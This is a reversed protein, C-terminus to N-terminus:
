EQIWVMMSGPERNGWAYYPIATIPTAGNASAETRYLRSGWDDVREFEAQGTLKVIGGLLDQDFEPALSRDRPLRVLHLPVPSDTAEVCYILPGRRVAIRGADQRVEPHASIRDIPMPLELKLRDGARWERTLRAYGDSVMHALDIPDGNLTIMPAGCWGPLRLSLTFTTPVDPSIEIEVDGSWPYETKQVLRVETGVASLRAESAMYLHVAIGDSAQGYAYSGISSVLRAINPPCCPCRHWIWRHHNGRSELPNDYFFTAGDLSLGALAANHIALEMIDAFRADLTGSLMRRAWFVLGVAACTEAYATENPLDYDSTFGENNASPGMGGTVYLRKSVLDDWLRDAAEALSGDAFEAALDAVASYLYMARVAHGVVKTQERVPLHAQSYEHTGFHYAAPDDDRKRAEDDFYLPETGRQDVFFKALNLYKAVGTARHLRILALEIEPHGCYGKLQDPGPGFREAIHDAYRCVIDLFRRKATAEFYAVAAEMLHGACYLEHCDRLNKWREGPQMRIFWSNLYGDALQLRAFMDVINDVIKEIQPDRAEALCNATAEIFKAVDSDWFMQMTVRNGQSFPIRLGPVARAPDIQDFMGAAVCREYLIPITTKRVVEMRDRWFGAVAVDRLHPPRYVATPRPGRGVALTMTEITKM